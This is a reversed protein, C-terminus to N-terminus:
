GRSRPIDGSGSTRVRACRPCTPSRPIARKDLSLDTFNFELWSGSISTQSGILFKIIEWSMINGIIGAQAGIIGAARSKPMFPKNNERGHEHKLEELLCFWCGTERPVVLLGLLGVHYSYSGGILHPTSPWCADTIIEAVETVSPQDACGVVLDAEAALEAIDMATNVKRNEGQVTVDPNIRSLREALAVVKSKGIDDSSYAIQRTLNSEEVVDADCVILKGIGAAGLSSAVASGLGGAGCVLVTSALMREQAELGHDYRLEGSDCLEQFLRIQRDYRGIQQDTLHTTIKAPDAVKSLLGEDRLTALIEGVQVALDERDECLQEILEALTHKGDLLPILHLALDNVSFRKVRRDYTSIFVLETEDREVV